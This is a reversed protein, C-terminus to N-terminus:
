RGPATARLSWDVPAAGQAQLMVNARSFLRSGLFPVPPRRASLPSPHNSMLLGHGAGASRIREANQQAHAGWLLFVKPAQDLAVADIVADTFGTWGAKAHSAPRDREVTLSTNLLLVGQRAWSM